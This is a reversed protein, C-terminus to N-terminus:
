MNRYRDVIEKIKHPRPVHNVTIEAAAAGGGASSDLTIRGTNMVRQWVSQEIQLNRIHDHLVESTHKRLLGRRHITRKNTLRLQESLHYLYWIGLWVLGIAVPSLSLYVLTWKDARGSVAAGIVGGIVLLTIMLASFPRARLMAPRFALIDQEPGHDPPLGIAEPSDTAIARNVDGCYPCPVRTGAAADDVEFLKECNDCELEIVETM